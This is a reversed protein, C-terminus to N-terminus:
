EKGLVLDLAFCGKPHWAEQRFHEALEADGAEELADSLPLRCDAGDYLAQALQVVTSPWSAPAPYPRFPNGILHRFFSTERRRKEADDLQDFGVNWATRGSTAQNAEELEKETAQGDAFREKVECYRRYCDDSLYGWFIRLVGSFFLERKRHSLRKGLFIMMAATEECVLWEAETM